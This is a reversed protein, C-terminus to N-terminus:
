YFPPTHSPPPGLQQHQQAHHQPHGHQQHGHQQLPLSMQKQGGIGLQQQGHAGGSGGGVAEAGYHCHSIQADEYAGRQAITVNINGGSRGVAGLVPSLGADCGTRYSAGGSGGSGGSGGGSPNADFGM